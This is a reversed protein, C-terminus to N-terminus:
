TQQFRHKNIKFNTKHQKIKNRINKIVKQIEKLDRIQWFHQNQDEPTKKPGENQDMKPKMTTVMKPGGM